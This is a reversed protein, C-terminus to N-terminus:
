PGCCLQTNYTISDKTDYFHGAFSNVSAMKLTSSIDTLQYWRWYCDLCKINAYLKNFVKCFNNARGAIFSQTLFGSLKEKHLEM